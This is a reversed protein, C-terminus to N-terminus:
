WLLYFLRDVAMPFREVDREMRGVFARIDRGVDSAGSEVNERLADPFGVIADRTRESDRATTALLRNWSRELSATDTELQSGVWETSRELSAARKAVIRDAPTREGDGPSSCAAVGGIMALAWILKKQM